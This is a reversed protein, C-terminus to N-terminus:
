VGSITSSAGATRRTMDRWAQLAAAASDIAIAVDAPGSSAVENLKEGTRPDIKDEYQGDLPPVSRGDIFSNTQEFM